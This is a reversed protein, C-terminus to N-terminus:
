YGVTTCRLVCTVLTQHKFTAQKCFGLLLWSHRHSPCCTLYTYIGQIWSPPVELDQRFLSYTFNLELNRFCHPSEQESILNCSLSRRWRSLFLLCIFNVYGLQCIGDLRRCVNISCTIYTKMPFDQVTHVEKTPGMMGESWDTSVM